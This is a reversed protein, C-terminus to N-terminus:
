KNLDTCNSKSSPFKLDPEISSSGDNAIAVYDGAQAKSILIVLGGAFTKFFTIFKANSKDITNGILSNIFEQSESAIDTMKFAIFITM